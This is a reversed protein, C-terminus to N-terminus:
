FNIAENLSLDKIAQINATHLYFLSNDHQIFLNDDNEKMVCCNADFNFPIGNKFQLYSEIIANFIPNEEKTLNWKEDRSMQMMDANENIEFLGKVKFNKIRTSFEQAKMM